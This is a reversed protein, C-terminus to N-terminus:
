CVTLIEADATTIAITHEFHASLSGDRTRVTWADADVRTRWDGAQVMPELAFTMGPRLRLGTGPQGYNLISPPEHMQRGVGHSTYERVVSFGAQEVLEQMAAAIDGIRNGARAQAIGAWLAAETVDLLQQAAASIPGVAYTWGSDGVWGRYTAGVDISIIDGVALHRTPSPIGHVLEDNISTCISAPFGRYGLFTPTADQSRIFDLAIADLEATSIGPRIHPRLAQHTRAVIQGAQRMLALERADHLVVGGRPAHNM